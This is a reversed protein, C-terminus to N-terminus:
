GGRNGKSRRLYFKTITTTTATTKSWFPIPSRERLIIKLSIKHCSNEVPISEISKVKLIAASEYRNQNPVIPHIPFPLPLTHRRHLIRRDLLFTFPLTSTPALSGNIYNTPPNKTLLRTIRARALRKDKELRIESRQINQLLYDLFAIETFATPDNNVLNIATAINERRSFVQMVNELDVYRYPFHESNRSSHSSSAASTASTHSTRPM